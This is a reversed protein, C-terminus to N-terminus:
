PEKAPAAEGEDDGARDDLRAMNARATLVSLQFAADMSVKEAELVHQYAEACAPCPKGDLMKAPLWAMTVRADPNRVKFAKAIEEAMKPDGAGLRAVEYAAKERVFWDAAQDRLDKLYCDRDAKCRELLEIGPEWAQLEQKVRADKQAAFAQKVQPLDDPGAVLVAFRGAEWRPQFVFEKEVADADYKGKKVVDLLCSLAKDGGIRGLAEVIFFMDGPNHTAFVCSCLADAPKPDGILGLANAVFARMSAHDPDPSGVDEDADEQPEAAPEADAAAAGECGDRPMFGVLDDVAKSSGIAGLISAATQQIALQAVGNEAALKQVGDHEGRLMRLVKPIAEDGISVLAVKARESVNTTTPADPVRFTVTLLADVAAPDGIRGLAQAAARHVSVPQDEKPQEMTKILVPVAKPDGLVGLTTVMLSRLRGQEDGEDLKPNAIVKELEEIVADAAETARAKKTGDLALITKSRADTSGDLEVAKSWISAASPHGVDRLLKLMTEQQEPAEDWIEEFVPTVKQAFEELLDSNDRATVVTKTLQELGSFGSPRKGPDKIREVHTEFKNPDPEKCGPALLVATALLTSAIFKRMLREGKSDSPGVAPAM